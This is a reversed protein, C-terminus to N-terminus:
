LSYIFTRAHQLYKLVAVCNTFLILKTISMHSTASREYNSAAPEGCSTSYQGTHCCNELILYAITIKQM